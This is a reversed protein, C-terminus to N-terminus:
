RNNSTGKLIIEISEGVKISPSVEVELLEGLLSVTAVVKDSKAQLELVEVQYSRNKQYLVEKITGDKQISGQELVVVRSALSFADGADHSVMITTMGFREHLKKIQEQLKVRMLSDLASLPEDMLLLTPKKMMARCLSVRQKQGGSLTQVHRTKLTDLATIKLLESALNEDKTVYLLNQEVTMNEFLAYDQFVFGIERKQPALSTKEGLWTEGEVEIRGEAEELGAIIRLLTTKGSGSEGMLAVFEGKQIQLKVDLVMKGKAGHLNKQIDIGIM